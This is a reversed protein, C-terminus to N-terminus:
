SPSGTPSPSPASRENRDVRYGVIVWGDDGPVLFFSGTSTVQNMAGGDLEADIRFTVRAIASVAHNEDNTLVLVRLTGRPERVAAYDENASPGLTLVDTDAEARAAASEDFLAYADAYDGWADRDVFAAFYFRDLTAKVAGAAEDAEAQLDAPTRDTTPSAKATALDFSFGAPGEDGGSFPSVGDGGLLLVGVVILLALVLVAGIIRM